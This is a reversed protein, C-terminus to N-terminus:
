KRVKKLLNRPNEEDNSKDEDQHGTDIDKKAAKVVTTEGKKLAENEAKLDANEKLIKVDKVKKEDLYDEDTFDKCFQNDKLDSKIKAIQEAKARANNAEEKAQFAEIEKKQSDVTAELEKVKSELAVIKEDKAKYADTEKKLSEVLLELDANKKKYEDWAQKIADKLAVGKAVLEKIRKTVEAPIAAEEITEIEAAVKVDEAAKDEAVKKDTADQDAKAEADTKSKRYEAVKAEDLLDEDKVDQPLYGALEALIKEIEQKKEDTMTREGQNNQNNDENATKLVNKHQNLVNMARHRLEETSISDTVPIIQNARALANRYHPLDIKGTADKYPLHRANKNDTKGDTFAPEIVAFSSNPLDNIYARTWKAAIEKLDEAKMFWPKRFKGMTVCPKHYMNYDADFLMDENDMTQNCHPCNCNMDPTTTVDMPQTSDTTHNALIQECSDIVQSAYVLEKSSEARQKYLTAMQFVKGNKYAQDVGFLLGVGTFEIDNLRITGDSLYEQSGRDALLEFSVNLDNEQMLELATRYDEEYISKFFAIIIDIENQDNLWADVIYGNIFGEGMHNKNCQVGVLGPLAKMVAEKGMRIRNGNPEEVKGYHAKFFALNINPYQIGKKQVAEIIDKDAEATYLQVNITYKQKAM